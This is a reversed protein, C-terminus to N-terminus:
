NLAKVPHDQLRTQLLKTIQEFIKCSGVMAEIKDEYSIANTEIIIHDWIIRVNIQFTNDENIWQLMYSVGSEMLGIWRIRSFWRGNLTQVIEETKIGPPIYTQLLQKYESRKRKDPVRIGPVSKTIQENKNLKYGNVSRQILGLEELRSLARALRQQHLNLKRMLGKFSYYSGTQQNLLSLIKNDNDHFDEIFPLEGATRTKADLLLHKSIESTSQLETLSPINEGTKASINTSHITNTTESIKEM